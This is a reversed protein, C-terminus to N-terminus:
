LSNCRRDAKWDVSIYCLCGLFYYTPYIYLYYRYISKSLHRLFAKQVKEFLLSYTSKHPKWVWIATELKCRILVGNSLFTLMISLSFPASFSQSSLYFTNRPDSEGVIRSWSLQWKLNGIILLITIPKHYRLSNCVVVALRFLEQNQKVM